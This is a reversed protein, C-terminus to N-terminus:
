CPDCGPVYTHIHAGHRDPGLARRTGCLVAAHFRFQVHPNVAGTDSDIGAELMFRASMGEGLDEKGRFGIRSATNGGSDVRITSNNGSKARAIYTDITGFISGDSQACACTCVAWAALAPITKKM